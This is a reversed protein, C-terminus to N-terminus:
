LSGALLCLRITHVTTRVKYLDSKPEKPYVATVDYGFLSLHRGAVLGDGGNDPSVDVRM